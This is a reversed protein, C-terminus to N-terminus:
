NRGYPMESLISFMKEFQKEYTFREAVKKRGNAAIEEREEPHNLYYEVKQRLDKLNMYYVFDKGPEFYEFLEPQYNSLLFGGAGMIDLARLSIGSRIQRYTINLNVASDYFIQPMEKMYDAYGKNEVYKLASVDSHTYLKMPFSKSIDQIIEQRELVTVHKLLMGIFVDKSTYFFEKPCEIDAYNSLEKVIDDTVLEEVLDAGPLQMQSVAVADAYGRLYEPLNRNESFFDYLGNYLSGLFCVDNEQKVRGTEKRIIQKEVRKVNVALPLHWVNKVGRRKLEECDHRDFSFIYNYPSFIMESYMSLPLADFVWVVYRVKKVFAIKAILPIFYVSFIFDYSAEELKKQLKISCEADRCYDKIEYDVVDVQHGMECLVVYMDEFTVEQRNFYLIRM